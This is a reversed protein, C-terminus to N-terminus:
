MMATKRRKAPDSFTVENVDFHEPDFDDGLWEIAEEYEEHTKDKIIDLMEEYGWVGGCDEPPCAWKGGICRPYTTDAEKPVIKELKVTHEWSDGFDYTYEAVSNEMSFWKAIKQKEGPLIGMDFVVDFDEAPVGIEVNMDTSPDAITFQHLHYDEWGMADQIAVHLDWFSYTEPVQIRRWIPPRLGKLAIKFQYVREYKKKSMVYM